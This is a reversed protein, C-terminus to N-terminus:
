EDAARPASLRFALEARNSVDLKRFVQHLQNRVTAASTGLVAAIERNQLGRCALRAVQLERAGLPTSAADACPATLQGVSAEILGLFPLVARLEDLERHRFTAGDHRCLHIAASSAGRFGLTAVIQSTIRQPRVIDAYFPLERRESSSYVDTDIFAGLKAAALRGKVLGATYRQPQEYYLRHLKLFPGKNVASPPLRREVAPVLIASDCGVRQALREIMTHHLSAIPARQASDFMEEVVARRWGAGLQSM